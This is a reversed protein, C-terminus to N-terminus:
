LLVENIKYKYVINKAPIPVTRLPRQLPKQNKKCHDAFHKAIAKSKKQLPKANKQLPHSVKKCLKSM